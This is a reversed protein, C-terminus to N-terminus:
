SEAIQLFPGVDHNMPNDFPWSPVISARCRNSHLTYARLLMSLGVIWSQGTVNKGQDLYLYLLLIM